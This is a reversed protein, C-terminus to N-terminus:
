KVQMSEAAIVLDKGDVTNRVTGTITVERELLAEIKDTMVLRKTDVYAFRRGSNDILQYDYPPNPNILARRASVLRGAFLRPLGATDGLLPVPRGPAAANGASVPPAVVPPLPKVEAPTNATAGVAIFGQLRKELRIQAWDGHLGTITTKDDKTAVTMVPADKRPATYINAGARVELGKTMDRNQVYAEFPGEVEVRQWGAPAEGVPKALTGAPLRTLVPSKPDTQLFVATDSPLAQAGLHTALLAAAALAASRFQSPKTKM